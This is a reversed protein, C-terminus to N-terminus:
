ACRGPSTIGTFLYTNYAHLVSHGKTHGPTPIISVDDYLQHVENGSLQIEIDKIKESIDDVHMIRECGLYEGFQRHDAIDDKHSLWMYRAGGLKKISEILPGNFRPSDILINGEPHTILYSAAGYSKESHFGCYYVNDAIEVPFMDRVRSILPTKEQNGISATPCAMMAQLALITQEENEPQQHVYSQDGHRGFSDPALWRCTDCDICSSDVYFAGKANIRRRKTIQAM